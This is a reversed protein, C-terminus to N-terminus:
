THNSEVHRLWARVLAWSVLGVCLPAIGILLNRGLWPLAEFERRALKNFLANAFIWGSHLGIPLWLSQTRLRADALIWGLLLLTTFGALVLLPQQFQSFAHAIAVFGSAWTVDITTAEAPKLFHLISFFASTTLAAFSPSGARLMVGLILGRFLPEELFPVVIAALAREILPMPAISSRLSYVGLQLLVAGFCLLPVTAIVFGVGLDRWRKQNASLGLDRWSGIRLWRVLPWLFAVAGVLLARHFFKDFDYQGLFVLWGRANAAAVTWYLVPAVMAGFLLTAALYALLKAADKM